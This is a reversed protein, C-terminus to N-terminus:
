LQLRELARRRYPTLTGIVHHGLRRLRVADRREEYGLADGLQEASRACRRRTVPSTSRKQPDRRHPCRRRRPWIQAAGRRASPPRPPHRGRRATPRHRPERRRSARSKHFARGEESPWLACRSSNGVGVRRVRGCAATARRRRPRAADILERRWQWCCKGTESRCRM